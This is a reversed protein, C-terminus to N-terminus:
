RRMLLTTILTVVGVGVSAYVGIMGRKLWQVDTKLTTIATHLKNVAEMLLEVQHSPM